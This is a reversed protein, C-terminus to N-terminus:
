KHYAWSWRRKYLIERQKEEKENGEARERGIRVVYTSRANQPLEVSSASMDTHFAAAAQPM